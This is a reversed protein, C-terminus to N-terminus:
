FLKDVRASHFTSDKQSSIQFRSRHCLVVYFSQIRLLPFLKRRVYFSAVFRLSEEDFCQSSFRFRLLLEIKTDSSAGKSAKKGEGTARGKM